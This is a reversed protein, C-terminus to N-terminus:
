KKRLYFCAQDGKGSANLEDTQRQWCNLQEATFISDAIVGRYAKSDNMAIDHAYQESAYFQFIESDYTVKEVTFGNAEALKRFSRETYLFLHRPPDLQVWNVGYREWAYNILPIRILCFRDPNLIRHIQFLSGVPDPLHEFSHHLMVLNFKEEIEALPKKYITVGNPYVMENKIFADAGTLNRFGFYNLTQLLEGQGCGFDLIPSSITIGLFTEKLFQPFHRGIWEKRKALHKGILGKGSLYFSSALRAALRSKISRSLEPGVAPTLSYYDKPYYQGLDPIDVIQVTGCSGCELYKFEDRTGFMMERAMHLRNDTSKGCIRCIESM